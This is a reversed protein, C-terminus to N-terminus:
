GDLHFELAVPRNAKKAEEMAETLNDRWQISDAMSTGEKAVGLLRETKKESFAAGEPNETKPIALLATGVPAAM